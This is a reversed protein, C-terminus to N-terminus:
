RAIELSEVLRSLREGNLCARRFVIQPQVRFPCCDLGKLQFHFKCIIGINPKGFMKAISKSRLFGIEPVYLNETDYALPGTSWYIGDRWYHVEPNRVARFAYDTSCAVPEGDDVVHHVRNPRIDTSSM